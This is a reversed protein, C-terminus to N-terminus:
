LLIKKIAKELTKSPLEKHLEAYRKAFLSFNSYGCELAVQSVKTQSNANALLEYARIIRRSAIWEAPGCQFRSKFYSYITSSALGSVTQLVGVNLPQDLNADIYDCILDLKRQNAGGGKAMEEKLFLTPELMTLFIRCITEDIAFTDLLYAEKDIQNVLGCLRLVVQKLDVNGIKLKLLRLADLRVRHSNEEGLVKHITQMLRQPSVSILIVSKVGGEAHRVGSPMFVAYGDPPVDIRQGMWWTKISGSVPIALTHDPDNVKMVTPTSAVTMMRVGNHNFISLRHQFQFEKSLEDYESVWNTLANVTSQMEALDLDIKALDHGFALPPLKVKKKTM